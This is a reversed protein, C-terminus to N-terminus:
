YESASTLISLKEFSSYNITEEYFHRNSSFQVTLILKKLIFEVTVREPDRRLGYITEGDFLHILGSSPTTTGGYRCRLHPFKLFVM